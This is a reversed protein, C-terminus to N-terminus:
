NLIGFYLTALISSAKNIDKYVTRKNINYKDAIMSIKDEGRLYNDRQGDCELYLESIIQYCREEELKGSTICAYKLIRLAIDFREKVFIIYEVTDVGMNHEVIRSINAKEDPHEKEYQMMIKYEKLIWKIKQIGADRQEKLWENKKQECIRIAIQSALITVERLTEENM